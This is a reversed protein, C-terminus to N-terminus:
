PLPRWQRLAQDLADEVPRMPAGAALLKPVDLICNSKIM